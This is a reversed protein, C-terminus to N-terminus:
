QKTAPANSSWMDYVIKWSGDSQKKLVELYKGEDTPLPKAGPQKPTLTMRYTGVSYALDGRGEVATTTLEAPGSFANTFGTWYKKAAEGGQVISELPPLLTVDSAYLAGIANGDGASAARAFEADVARVAKEDEASLGAPAAVTGTASAPTEEKPAPQCATGLVLLATLGFQIPRFM